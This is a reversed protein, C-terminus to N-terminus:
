PLARYTGCLLGPMAWSVPVEVVPIQGERDASIGDPSSAPQSAHRACSMHMYRFSGTQEGPGQLLALYFTVKGAVVAGLVLSPICTGFRAM